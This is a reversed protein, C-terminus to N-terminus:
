PNFEIAAVYRPRTSPIPIVFTRFVDGGGARVVYPEKMTAVVDPTGLRWGSTAALAAPRPPLDAPDGEIAGGDIWRLLTQLDGDALRRSSEFDGKGPVPKWPPMIRRSTVQAIQTARRKVDDYTLLSFPGIEGPRHCTACHTWVIPAIDKTFTPRRQA